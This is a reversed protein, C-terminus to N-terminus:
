DGVTVKLSIEKIDSGGVYERVVNSIRTEDLYARAFYTGSEAKAFFIDKKNNNLVNSYNSDLTASDELMGDLFLKIETASITVAVHHWEDKPVSESSTYLTKSVGGQGYYKVRIKKDPSQEYLIELGGETSSDGKQIVMGDYNDSHMRFWSEVTITSVEFDSVHIMRSWDNASDNYMLSQAGFKKVDSKFMPISSTTAQNMPDHITDSDDALLNGTTENFHWLAITDSDKTFQAAPITYTSNEYRRAKSIRIECIQGNWYEQLVNNLLQSSGWNNAGIAIPQRNGEWGHTWTLDQYVRNGNFFVKFGGVGFVVAVHYWVGSSMNVNITEVPGTDVDDQSRVYLDNGVRKIIFHGGTMDGSGDKSFITDNGSLTDAKFWCEWTLTQRDMEDNHLAEIWDNSGDFDAAKDFKGTVGLTAGNVRAPLGKLITSSNIIRAEADTETDYHALLLTNADPTYPNNIDEETGSGLVFDATLIDGKTFTIPLNDLVKNDENSFVLESGSILVGNKLLRYTNSNLADTIVSMDTLKLDRSILYGLKSGGVVDMLQPVLDTESKLGFALKGQSALGYRLRSIGNVPSLDALGDNIVLDGDTIYDTLETGDFTASAWAHWNKPDIEYQDNAFVTVGTAEIEIDTGTVNKIIRQLSM